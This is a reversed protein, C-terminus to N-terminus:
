RDRIIDTAISAVGQPTLECTGHNAVQRPLLVEKVLYDNGIEEVIGFWGVEGDVLDVIHYMDRMVQPTFFVKPIVFDVTVVPKAVHPTFREASSKGWDKYKPYKPPAPPLSLQKSPESM